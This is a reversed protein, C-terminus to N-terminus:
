DVAAFRKPIQQHRSLQPLPSGVSRAKEKKSFVHLASVVVRIVPGTLNKLYQERESDVGPCATEGAKTVIGRSDVQAKAGRRIHHLKSPDVTLLADKLRVDKAVKDQIFITLVDNSSPKRLTLVTDPGASLDPFLIPELYFDKMTTASAALKGYLYVAEKSGWHGKFEDPLKAKQLLLHNELAQLTFSQLLATAAIFEFRNGLAASDASVSRLFEFGFDKENEIVLRATELVLPELKVITEREFAAVPFGLGFELLLPSERPTPTAGMSLLFADQLFSEHPNKTKQGALESQGPKQLVRNFAGLLTRPQASTDDKRTMRHLYEDLFSGIPKNLASAESIFEAVWRPRGILWNAVHEMDANSPAGLFQELLALVQGCDLLPFDTFIFDQQVGMTSVVSKWEELLTLGTGAFVPLRGLAGKVGHLIPSLVSRRGNFLREGPTNTLFKDPLVKGLAQAEDIVCYFDKCFSEHELVEKPDCHRYLRVALTM